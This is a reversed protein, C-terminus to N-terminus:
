VEGYEVRTAVIALTGPGVHTAVSLSLDHIEVEGAKHFLAEVEERLQEARENAMAHVVTFKIQRIDVDAFKEKLDEQIASIMMEKAQKQTRAKAFPEIKGDQLYLVPKIRLLTGLAAAAASIRGGKKLYKLTDVSLYISADKSTKMLFDVIESPACGVDAMKKATLASQLLTESIRKNDVVYVKGAFEEERSLMYATDYSASLSSSMPIHLICDYTKLIEEWMDTIYGPSPQSTSIDAGDMQKEFFDERSLDISDLYDKGDITFPMAVIHLGLEEGKKVTLGSNTDTVIAIKM